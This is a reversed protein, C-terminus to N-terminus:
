KKFIMINKKLFRKFYFFVIIAGTAWSFTSSIWIGTTGILSDFLKAVPVRIIWLTFLTIFMPIVTNGMGRLTGMYCFMIAFLWYSVGFVYLYMCGIEIVAQETTFMRMLPEALASLLVLLIFSTAFTFKITARLGNRIRDFNQAGFNQGAFSTLSMSISMPIVMIFSEIRYAASYAAITDTGHSNIISLVALMGMSVLLQQIGAPFGLKISKLFIKKDFCMTKIDFKVIESKHNTYLVAFLFSFAQSIVTAWAVGEIGWNFVIVFVVDLIINIVSSVILFILPTVSDGIGRLIASLSNFGFLFVMGLLTIDLYKKAWGRLEEPLKIFEMIAENFIIGISALIIAAAFLFIYLSDAAKKIDSISNGGTFQSIVITSGMSIGIVLSILMFIFPTSAGVAALAEKGIFRGVVVSDAYNYLQMCVNGIMIPYAFTM